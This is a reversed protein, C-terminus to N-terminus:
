TKLKDKEKITMMIRNHINDFGKNSMILIADGPKVEQRISELIKDVSPLISYKFRWERAIETLNFDKPKLIYVNDADILAGPMEKAHVGSRM